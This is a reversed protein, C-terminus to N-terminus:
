PIRKINNIISIGYNDMLNKKKIFDKEGDYGNYFDSYNNNHFMFNVIKNTEHVKKTVLM